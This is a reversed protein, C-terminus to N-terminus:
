KRDISKVFGSILTKGVELTFHKGVNDDQWEITITGNPNPTPEGDNGFERLLVLIAQANAVTDPDLPVAGYGDWNPQLKAMGVVDWTCYDYAGM